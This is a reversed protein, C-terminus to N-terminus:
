WIVQLIALIFVVGASVPIDSFYSLWFGLVASILTLMTTNVIWMGLNKSKRSAIGAPLILFAITLIIGLSKLLVVIALAIMSLVLYYLFIVPLGQVASFDEDISSILFGTFFRFFLFGVIVVVLWSILADTKSLLLVNGFLFSMLDTNFNKVKSLIVLGIAMGLSWTLAISIDSYYGKRNIWGIFCALAVAGPFTLICPCINWFVALAVVALLAHSIAGTIFGIRRIVIFPGVLGSIIAGAILAVIANQVFPYSLGELLEKFMDIDGLSGILHEM